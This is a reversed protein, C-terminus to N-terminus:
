NRRLTDIGDNIETGDDDNDEGEEEEIGERIGGGGGWGSVHFKEDAM